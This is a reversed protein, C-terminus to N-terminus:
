IDIETNEKDGLFRSISERSVWWEFWLKADNGLYQNPRAAPRDLYKQMANIYATKHNTWRIFQKAIEKKSAMPCGICGIRKFGENYLNCYPLEMSRIYEWVDADKWEIIIHIFRKSKDQKSTEFQNRLARANSEAKRIGTIVIRNSGQGEKLYKCCFRITRSPFGAKEILQFMTKDPRHWIVDPYNDRIFKLLEPPDVSTKSFHADFKCGSKVMLDYIVISDKGGSFALFYGDDPEYERLTEIASFCLERLRENM